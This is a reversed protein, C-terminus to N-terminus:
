VAEGLSVVVPRGHPCNFAGEMAYLSDVLGRMKDSSIEDGVRFANHCAFSAM